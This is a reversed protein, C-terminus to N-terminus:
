VRFRARNIGLLGRCLSGNGLLVLSRALSQSPNLPYPKLGYRFGLLINFLPGLGTIVAMSAMIKCVEQPGPLAEPHSAEPNPPHPLVPSNFYRSSCPLGQM